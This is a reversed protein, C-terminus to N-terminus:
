SNKTINPIKINILKTIKVIFIVIGINTIFPLLIKSVPGISVDSNAKIIIVIIIIIFSSLLSSSSSVSTLLLSMEGFPRLSADSNAGRQWARSEEEGMQPSEILLLNLVIIM